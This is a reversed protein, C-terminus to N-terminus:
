CIVIVEGKEVNVSCNKLVQFQGYFKSVNHLEIFAM